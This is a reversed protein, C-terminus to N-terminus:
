CLCDHDFWINDTPWVFELYKLIYQKPSIWTIRNTLECKNRFLVSLRNWPTIFTMLIFDVDIRITNRLLFRITNNTCDTMTGIDVSWQFNRKMIRLTWKVSAQCIEDSLSTLSRGILLQDTCCRITYSIVFCLKNATRRMCKMIWRNAMLVETTIFLISQHVDRFSYSNECVITM